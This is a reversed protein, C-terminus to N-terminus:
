TVCANCDLSIKLSFNDDGSISKRNSQSLAAAFNCRLRGRWATATNEPAAGHLELRM